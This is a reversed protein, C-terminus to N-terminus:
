GVALGRGGTKRSERQISQVGGERRDKIYLCKYRLMKLWGIERQVGENRCGYFSCPVLHLGTKDCSQRHSPRILDEQSM